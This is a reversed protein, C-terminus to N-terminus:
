SPKKIEEIDEKRENADREKSKLRLKFRMSINAKCRPCTVKSHIPRSRALLEELVKKAMRNRREKTLSKLLEDEDFAQAKQRYEGKLGEIEKELSSIRVAKEQIATKVQEALAQHTQNVEELRKDRGAMEQSLMQLRNRSEQLQTKIESSEQNLVKRDEELSAIKQGFQEAVDQLDQILHDWEGEQIAQIVLKRNVLNKKANEAKKLLEYYKSM